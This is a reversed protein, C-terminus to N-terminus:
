HGAFDTTRQSVYWLGGVKKAGIVCVSHTDAHAMLYGSAVSESKHHGKETECLGTVSNKDWIGPRAMRM